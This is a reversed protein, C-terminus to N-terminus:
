SLQRQHDQWADAVFKTFELKFRDVSYHEAWQRIHHPNFQEPQFRIVADALSEWTQDEFLVGTVWPKVTELAGGGAYAIVPRGSAMAEIVTIGFDEEQPNIFAIAQHYFEPLADDSVRGLFEINPKALRQLMKKAPGDGYIKLPLGLRNFAQVALDFRKYPVLRGGTLYYKGPTQAVTFRHLDVPPYIVTSDRRYYKTTRQQVARSNTVFRDVRDAALRDWQRLKTLTFPILWRMWQPYPLEAVYQHTDNWLYRTPSHLYCVHLTAPNTIVGKAFGSASSIVVDYNRLDFREIANAMWSLYWQYHRVGGPLRQIFSPRIDSKKFDPHARQPNYVLTYLPAKPYLQQFVRVVNEAGGNQALHEHVLAVKM